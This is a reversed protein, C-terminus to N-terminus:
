DHRSLRKVIEEDTMKALDAGSRGADAAQLLRDLDSDSQRAIQIREEHSMESIDIGERKDASKALGRLRKLNKANPKMNSQGKTFLTKSPLVGTVRRDRKAARWPKAGGGQRSGSRWGPM